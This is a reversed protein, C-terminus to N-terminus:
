ALLNYRVHGTSPDVQWTVSSQIIEGSDVTASARASAGFNKEGGGEGNNNFGGGNQDALEFSISGSQADLGASQLARELAHGDRQLMMYTEPKEVTLHAKVAKDKGFSLRISVSGLEPPDLRVQMTQNEGQAAFRVINAAVLNTAPHSQGASAGSTITSAAQATTGLTLGSTPTMGYTQFIAADTEGSFMTVPFVM